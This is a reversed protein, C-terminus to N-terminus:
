RPGTLPCHSVLVVEVAKFHRDDVHCSSRAWRLGVDTAVNGQGVTHSIVFVARGTAATVRQVLAVTPPGVPVGFYANPNQLLFVGRPKPEDHWQYVVMRGDPAAFAADYFGAPVLGLSTDFVVPEGAAHAQAAVRTAARWDERYQSHAHQVVTLLAALVVLGTGLRALTSGWRSLVLAFLVSTGPVTVILYQSSFSPQILSFVFLAVVPLFAWAALVAFPSRAVSRLNWRGYSGVLAAGILCVAVAASPAGGLVIAEGRMLDVIGPRHLWYFPDREARIRAAIILLPVTSGVVVAAAAVWRRLARRGSQLPAAVQAVLLLGGSLTNLYFLLVMALIYLAWWRGDTRLARLLFGYALVPVLMVLGYARAAQSVSVAYANVALFAAGLLAVRRDVLPRVAWPLAVVAAVGAVASAVRLAILGDGIRALPFALIYYPFANGEYHVLLHLMRGFDRQTFALTSAEDVYLSQRGITIFRLAAGVATIVALPVPVARAATRM